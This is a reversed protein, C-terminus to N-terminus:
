RKWPVTHHKLPELVQDGRMVTRDIMAAEEQEEIRRAVELQRELLPLPESGLLDIYTRPMEMFREFTIGFRHFQSAVFVQGWHEIAEDSYRGPQPVFLTRGGRARLVGVSYRFSGGLRHRQSLIVAAKM